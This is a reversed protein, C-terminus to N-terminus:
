KEEQMLHKAMSPYIDRRFKRRLEYVREKKIGTLEVIEATDFARLEFAAVMLELERDGKVKEHEALHELVHEFHEIDDYDTEHDSDADLFKEEIEDGREFDEDKYKSHNYLSSSVRNRLVRYLEVEDEPTEDLDVFAKEIAKHVIDELSGGKPLMSNLEWGYGSGRSKAYNLLKAGIEEWDLGRLWDVKKKADM